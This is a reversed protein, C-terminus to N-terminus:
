YGSYEPHMYFWSCTSQSPSASIFNVGRYCYGTNKTPNIFVSDNSISSTISIKDDYNELEDKNYECESNTDKHYICFLKLICRRLKEM